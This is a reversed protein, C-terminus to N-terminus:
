AYQQLGADGMSCGQWNNTYCGCEIRSTFSFIFICELLNLSGKILRACGTVM